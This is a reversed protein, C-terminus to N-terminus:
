WSTKQRRFTRASSHWLHKYDTVDTLTKLLVRANEPLEFNAARWEVKRVNHYEPAVSRLPLRVPGSRTRCDQEASRRLWM